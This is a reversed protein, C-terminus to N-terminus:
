INVSYFWTKPYEASLRAFVPGIGSYDIDGAFFGVVM